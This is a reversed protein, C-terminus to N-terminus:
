KRKGKWWLKKLVLCFWCKEWHDFWGFSCCFFGLSLFIFLYIFHNIVLIITKFILISCKLNMLVWMNSLFVPLTSLNCFQLLLLVKFLLFGFDWIIVMKLFINNSRFKCKIKGWMKGLVLLLRQPLSGVTGGNGFCWFFIRSYFLWYIPWFLFFYIINLDFNRLKM